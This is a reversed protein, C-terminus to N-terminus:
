LSSLPQLNNADGNPDDYRIPVIPPMIKQGGSQKHNQLDKWITEATHLDFNVKLKEPSFKKLANISGTKRLIERRTKEDLSPLVSALEYFHSFDRSTRHVSNAATHAEDRLRQLFRFADSDSDFLIKEGTETLFHSIEGHRRPPKVASIIFCKGKEFNELGKLAANLQSNGGDILVVDPADIKNNSFNSFRASISKELTELESTKDFFWFRYEDAAFKGNEWVANAGVPNAGSIHAVDFAEIRKPLIRLKFIQKLKKQLDKSSVPPKINRLDFEHKNREIARDITKKQNKENAVTIKVRCNERKSLTDALNKRASFDTAVRIEAPAHFTYFEPLIETYIEADSFKNEFVFVRKGLNKRGRMTVLFVFIQEGRREIEWNDTAEDLWLIWENKEWFKEIATLKDRWLLATEFDLDESLKEIKDLFKEQLIGNQRKLFLRLLEVSESYETEGCINEVCPALCRKAYFQPCPVDFNGDLEITCTRLKFLKNLFNIFFRVGTEPLFAGYYEADDNEIKKTVLLRPFKEDTIKLYPYLSQGGLRLSSNKVSEGKM